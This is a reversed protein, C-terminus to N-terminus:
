DHAGEQRFLHLEHSFWYNLKVYLRVDNEAVKNRLWQVQVDGSIEPVPRVVAGLTGAFIDERQHISEDLRYAAFSFGLTPILRRDLLPYMGQFEFSSLQGAYGNTGSWSASAYEFYAGASLRRSLDDTYQVYAFRAYTRLVSAPTYEIGGEYERM